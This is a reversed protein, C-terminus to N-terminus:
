LYEGFASALRSCAGSIGAPSSTESSSFVVSSSAADILRATIILTAGVREASGVFLYRATKGDAQPPGAYKESARAQLTEALSSNIAALTARDVTESALPIYRMTGILVPGMIDAPVPRDAAPHAPATRETKEVPPSQARIYHRIATYAGATASLGAATILVGIVIKGQVLSMKVGFRKTMRYLLLVMAYIAGYVGAHRLVGALSDRKYDEMRAQIDAPLKETFRLRELTREFIDISDSM